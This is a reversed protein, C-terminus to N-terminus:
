TLCVLLLSSSSRHPCVYLSCLFIESSGRLLIRHTKGHIEADTHRPIITNQMVQLVLSGNQALPHDHLDARPPFVLVDPLLPDM